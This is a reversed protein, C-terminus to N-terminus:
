KFYFRMGELEDCYTENNTASVIDKVLYEEDGSTYGLIAFYNNVAIFPGMGYFEEDFGDLSDIVKDYPEVTGEDDLDYQNIIINDNFVAELYPIAEKKFAKCDSCENIYFFQIEVKQNLEIPDVKPACGFLLFLVFILKKIM